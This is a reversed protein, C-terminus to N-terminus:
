TAEAKETLRRPLHGHLVAWDSFTEFSDASEEYYWVFKHIARSIMVVAEMILIRAKDPGKPHKLWNSFLNPDDEPMKDRLIKILPKGDKRDNPVMGEGAAALTIACEFEEDHLARIAGRIQRVAAIKRTTDLYERM